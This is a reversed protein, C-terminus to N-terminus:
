QVSAKFIAAMATLLHSAWYQRANTGSLVVLDKIDLNKAAFLQTLVTFNATPPPLQNTENSISVSGDRRGLPVEWFPGKSQFIVLLMSFRKKRSRLLMLLKIVYSSLNKSIAAMSIVALELYKKKRKRM